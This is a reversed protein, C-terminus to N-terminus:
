RKILTRKVMVTFHCCKRTSIEYLQEYFKADGCRNQLRGVLSEKQQGKLAHLM